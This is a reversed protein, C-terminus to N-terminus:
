PDEIIHKLDVLKGHVFKTKLEQIKMLSKLQKYNEFESEKLIEFVEKDVYLKM